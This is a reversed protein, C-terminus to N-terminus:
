SKAVRLVNDSLATKFRIKRDAEGFAVISIDTATTIDGEEGPDPNEDPTTSTADGAEVVARITDDKCGFFLRGAGAAISYSRTGNKKFAFIFSGVGGEPPVVFYGENYFDLNMSRVPEIELEYVLIQASLPATVFAAAFAAIAFFTKMFCLPEHSSADLIVCWVGKPEQM